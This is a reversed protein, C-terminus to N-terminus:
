NKTAGKLPECFEEFLNWNTQQNNYLNVLYSIAEDFDVRKGRQKQLDAAIKTLKIKTDNKLM